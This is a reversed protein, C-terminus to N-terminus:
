IYAAVLVCPLCGGELMVLAQGIEKTFWSEGLNPGAILVMKGPLETTSKLVPM